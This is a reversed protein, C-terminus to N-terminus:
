HDESSESCGYIVPMKGRWQLWKENDIILEVMFHAVNIRSTKGSNFIASRTPSAYTSYESVSDDDVLSDPRVVSWEHSNLAIQNRLYDAANENDNHPPLLCYLLGIVLRESFSIVEPIDRNRCGASNMLIFKVHKESNSDQVAQYLCHISDTVLRRPSGFMGRFSLEHGLCSVIADCDKVHAILADKPLDLITNIVICINDHNRVEEPLKAPSRVITTVGCGKELLQKVLHQGTKGTAGVVLVKLSSDDDLRAFDSANLNFISFVYLLLSFTSIAIIRQM